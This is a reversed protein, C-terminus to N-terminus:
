RGASHMSLRTVQGDANLPSWTTAARAAGAIACSDLLNNVSFDIKM